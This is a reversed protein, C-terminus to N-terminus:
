RSNISDPQGVSYEIGRPLAGSNRLRTLAAFAGTSTTYGNKNAVIEKTSIVYVYWKNDDLRPEM